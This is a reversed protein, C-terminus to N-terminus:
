KKATIEVLFSGKTNKLEGSPINLRLLITGDFPVNFTRGAGIEIPQHFTGPRRDNLTETSINEDNTLIVAQLIGWPQERHYEISVGNTECPWVELQDRRTEFRGKSRIRVVDGKKVLVGSNQWGHDASFKKLIKADNKKDLPTGASPDFLEANLDFDYELGAIFMFWKKEIETRKEDIANMFLRTFESHTRGNKLEPLMQRLTDKLEPDNQLLWMWAWSWYYIANTGYDEPKPNVLQEVSRFEGRAVADRIERIRGCFPVERKSKPMIGLTLSGNEWSHMGLTEAMGEAFWDPGADGLVTSSFSHVMEHIMLHRRYYESPQDFVWCDYNFSFGNQFPPLIDPIYNAKLFPEKEKMLFINLTWEPDEAVGFFDCLKSYAADAVVVLEQVTNETPLDTILKVHKGHLVELGASRARQDEVIIRPHSRFLENMQFAGAESMLVANEESINPNETQNEAYPSSFATALPAALLAASLLSFASIASYSRSRFSM